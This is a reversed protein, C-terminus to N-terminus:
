LHTVHRLKKLAANSRQTRKHKRFLPEGGANRNDTNILVASIMVNKM